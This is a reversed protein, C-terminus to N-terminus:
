RQAGAAFLAEIAGAHGQRAAYHLPTFGAADPANVDAGTAVLDKIREVDGMQVADHLTAGRAPFTVIAIAIAFTTPKM